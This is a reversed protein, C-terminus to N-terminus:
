RRAVALELSASAAAVEVEDTLARGDPLDVRVRYRGFPLAPFEFTGEGDTAGQVYALGRERLGDLASSTWDLRDVAVPLRAPQPAVVRGELRGVEFAVAAPRPETLLESVLAGRGPLYVKLIAPGPHCGTLEVVGDADTESDRSQWLGDLGSLRVSGAAVPRTGDLLRVRWPRGRGLDRLDITVDVDEHEPVDVPVTRHGDATRVRVRVEGPEVEDFRCRGSADTRHAFHTRHSSLTLSRGGAPQGDEGILRVTVARARWCALLGFDLDLEDPLFRAESRTAVGGAPEVTARYRGAELGTFEFSGGPGLPTTAVTRWPVREGTFVALECSGRAPAGDVFEARGFATSGRGISVTGLDTTGPGLSVSGVTRAAGGDPEVVVEFRGAPLGGISFEAREFRRALEGAAGTLRVRYGAGSATWVRGTLVAAPQLVVDVPVASPISVTRSGPAWADSEWALVAAGIPVGEFRFRGDPGTTTHRTGTGGPPDRELDLAIGPVGRGHPSEIRGVLEGGPELELVWPEDLSGPDSRVDRAEAFGSLRATAVLVGPALGDLEFRGADGALASRADLEGVAFGDVLSWPRVRVEAGPLGAGDVGVVSGHVRSGRALAVAVSRARTRVIGPAWRASRALVVLEGDAGGTLPFRFRGREDTTAHGPQALAGAPAQVVVDVRAGVAPRGEPDFVVGVLEETPGDTPGSASDVGREATREGPLAREPRVTEVARAASGAGPARASPDAEFPAGEPGVAGRSLAFWLVLLLSCAGAISWRM